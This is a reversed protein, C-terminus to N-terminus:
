WIRSQRMQDLKKLATDEETMSLGSVLYFHSVLKQFTQREKKRERESVHLFASKNADNQDGSLDSAIGGIVLTAISVTSSFSEHEHNKLLIATEEPFGIM